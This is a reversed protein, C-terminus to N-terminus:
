APVYEFHMGDPKTFHGGWYWRLQNAIPVLERVSGTTGPLAPTRGLMNWQFNIDFATGWSHNSLTRNSGRVFRAVQSGDFTQILPLLGAEEWAAFLAAVPAAAEKHFRFNCSSPAGKVGRLQPINVTAINAAEWGHHILIAEANGPVPKPTYAFRGFRQAREENGTLPSFGPRPPWNPGRDSDDDDELVHVGDRLAISWTKPGVVGDPVLGSARQFVITAAKTEADFDDGDSGTLYGAGELFRKWSSVDPGASSLRLVRM